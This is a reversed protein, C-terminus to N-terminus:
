EEETEYVERIYRDLYWMAKRLDQEKNGKHPARLIYKVVNSLHGEYGYTAEIIDIVEVPGQNYHSPQNVPDDIDTILDHMGIIKHDEPKGQSENHEERLEGARISIDCLTEHYGKVETPVYEEWDTADRDPTGLQVNTANCSIASYIRETAPDYYYAGWKSRRVYTQLAIADEYSLGEEKPEEVPVPEEQFKPSYWEWDAKSLGEKFNGRPWACDEETGNIYFHETGPHWADGVPWHERRILRNADCAEEFTM